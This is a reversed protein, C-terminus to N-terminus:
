TRALELAQARDASLYRHLCTETQTQMCANISTHVNHLHHPGITAPLLNDNHASFCLISCWLTAQSLFVPDLLVCEHAYRPTPQGATASIRDVNPSQSKPQCVCLRVRACVCVSSYMTIVTNCTHSENKPDSQARQTQGRHGATSSQREHAHVAPTHTSCATAVCSPILSSRPRNNARAPFGNTRTVRRFASM